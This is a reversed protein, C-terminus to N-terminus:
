DVIYGQIAMGKPPIMLQGCPHALLKVQCLARESRLSLKYWKNHWEIGLMVEMKKGEQHMDYLTAEVQGLTGDPVPSGNYGEYRVIMNPKINARVYKQYDVDSTFNSRGKFFAKLSPFKRVIAQRRLSAKGLSPMATCLADLLNTDFDDLMVIDQIIFDCCLEQLKLAAHKDARTSIELINNMLYFPAVADKLGEMLYLDAM